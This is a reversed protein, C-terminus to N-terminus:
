HNAFCKDDVTDGTVQYQLLVFSERFHKTLMQKEGAALDAATFAVAAGAVHDHVPLDGLGTDYLHAFNGGEEGSIITELAVPTNEALKQLIAQYYNEM